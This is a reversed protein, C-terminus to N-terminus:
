IDQWNAATCFRSLHKLNKTAVIVERGPYEDVLIQYHAAIIIDIDIDKDSRSTQGSAAAKAWLDAAINLVQRDAVLFEVWGEEELEQLGQLGPVPKDAQLSAKLLGRRVEYLCLESSVLSARRFTHHFWRDCAIAEPSTRRSNILGLINSDLLVIM